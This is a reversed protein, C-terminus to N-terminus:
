VHARGIQFYNELHLAYLAGDVVYAMADQSGGKLRIRLRGTSRRSSVRELHSILSESLHHVRLTRQTM